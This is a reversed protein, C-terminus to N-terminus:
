HPRSQVLGPPPHPTAGSTSSKATSSSGRRGAMAGSGSKKVGGWEAQPVYPHYDNIWVTGLRLRSGRARAEDSTWSGSRRATQPCRSERTCEDLLRRWESDIFLDPMAAEWGRSWGSTPSGSTTSTPSLVGSKRYARSGMASQTRECAEFDQVNVRHFLEVSKSVDAGSAVVEPAYLRDCDVETRGEALPFGRHLIVHDPVLNIFVAAYGDAFEPLFGTLEPHFTACHCCEMFSEVILKWDAKVDYTIRKGLALNETGYREIAAADGIWEVATGTM